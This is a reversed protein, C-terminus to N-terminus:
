WVTPSPGMSMTQCNSQNPFTSVMQSYRGYAPHNRPSAVNERSIRCSRRPVPADLRLTSGGLRSVRTASRDATSSATPESRGTRPPAIRPRRAWRRTRRWTGRARGSGRRTTDPAASSRPARSHRRHSRPCRPAIWAPWWRDKPYRRRRTNPTCPSPAPSRIRRRPAPEAPLGGRGINGDLHVPDVVLGVDPAGHRRDGRGHEQQSALVVALRERVEGREQTLRLDPQERTRILQLDVLLGRHEVGDSLEHADRRGRRLQVSDERRDQEGVDDSGRLLLSLQSVPPVFPQDFLMVRDDAVGESAPATRLRVRGAVAEVRREVSRRARDATRHLDRWRTTSRPM